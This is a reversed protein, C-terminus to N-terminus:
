NPSLLDSSSRPGHLYLRRAFAESSKRVSHIIIKVVRTVTIVILIKIVMLVIIVVM